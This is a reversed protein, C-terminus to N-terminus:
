GERTNSVAPTPSANEDARGFVEFSVDRPHMAAGNIPVLDQPCASMVAVLSHRAVFTVSDGPRSVTPEFRLRGDDTWPINMFLNLPDPLTERRLGLSGIAQFFNERCNPHSDPAGLSRYREPDCAAILTDHTGPSTDEVFSLLPARDSDYLEDGASPRLRSLAARTHAMSLHVSVDALKLAWFDVVQSGHTNVIRISDGPDLRVATGTGARVVQRVISGPPGKVIQEATRERHVLALRVARAM